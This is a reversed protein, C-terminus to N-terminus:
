RRNMALQDRLSRDDVWKGIATAVEVEHGTYNHDSGSFMATDVSPSAIANRRVSDLDDADGILPENTGFFVYLPVRVKAVAADSTYLGFVDVNGRVRSLYAEASVNSLYDPIWEGSLLDTGRGDAIMREAKATLEADPRGARVGPSACVLGTVRPDQRHAMYSTVKLAGYSHGALVIGRVDQQMAMDIWPAIDRPSEEFLEWGAGGISDTLDPKRLRAMLDHGRNNGAVFVFGRGALTRGMLVVQRAYFRGGFGHNWVIALSKSAVVTPRIIIGELLWGDESQTYTLEESYAKM